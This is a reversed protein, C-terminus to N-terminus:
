FFDSPSHSFVLQKGATFFHFRDSPGTECPMIKTESNCHLVRLLMGICTVPYINCGAVQWVTKKKKKKKYNQSFFTWLPGWSNPVCIQRCSTECCCKMADHWVSNLTPRWIAYTELDHVPTCDDDKAYFLTLCIHHSTFSLRTPLPM